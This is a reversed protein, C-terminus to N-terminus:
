CIRIRQTFTRTDASLNHKGHRATPSTHKRRWSPSNSPRGSVHRPLIRRLNALGESQQVCRLPFPNASLVTRTTCIFVSRSGSVSWLHDEGKIIPFSNKNRVKNRPKRQLKSKGVETWIIISKEAEFGILCNKFIKFIEKTNDKYQAKNYIDEHWFANRQSIFDPHSQSEKLNRQFSLRSLEEAGWARGQFCNEICGESVLLGCWTFVFNGLNEALKSLNTCNTFCRSNWPNALAHPFVVNVSSRCYAPVCFDAPVATKM